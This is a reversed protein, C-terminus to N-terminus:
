GWAERIRGNMHYGGLLVGLYLIERVWGNSWQMNIRGFGVTTGLSYILYKKILLSGLRNMKWSHGKGVPKELHYVGDNFNWGELRTERGRNSTIVMYIPVELPWRRTTCRVTRVRWGVYKLDRTMWQHNIPLTGVTGEEIRWKLWYIILYGCITIVINAINSQPTEQKEVWTELYPM